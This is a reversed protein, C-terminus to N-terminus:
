KFALIISVIVDIIFLVFFFKSIKAITTLRKYIWINLITNRERDDSVIKFYDKINEGYNEVIFQDKNSSNEYEEASVKVKLNNNPLIEM